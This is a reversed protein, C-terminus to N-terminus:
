YVHGYVRQTIAPDHGLWKATAVATTRGALLMTAATHRVDHLGIARVGAAKSHRTFDSSYTQPRIPSGDENVAV